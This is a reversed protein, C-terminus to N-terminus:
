FACPIRFVSHCGIAWYFSGIVSWLIKVGASHWVNILSEDISTLKVLLRLPLNLSSSQAFDSVKDIYACNSFTLTTQMVITMMLRSWKEGSYVNRELINIKQRQYLPNIGTLTYLDCYPNLVSMIRRNRQFIIMKTDEKSQIKMPNIVWSYAYGRSFNMILHRIEDSMITVFDPEIRSGAEPHLVDVFIKPQSSHGFVRVDGRTNEARDKVAVEVHTRVYIFDRRDAKEM